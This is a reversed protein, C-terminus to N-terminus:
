DSIARTDKVAQEVISRLDWYRELKFRGDPRARLLTGPELKCVGQYVTLPAPIYNHRMFSALAARDVRPTWGPIERLPKLESGVSILGGITSWYLPKIGLRDRILVLEGTQKDYLAIAFMGILRPLVQEVGWEAFAELIVETDSSGKLKRASRALEATLEKHSY